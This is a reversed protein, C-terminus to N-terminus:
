KVCFMFGGLGDSLLPLPLSNYGAKKCNLSLDECLIWCIVFFTSCVCFYKLLILNKAKQCSPWSTATLLLTASKWEFRHIRKKNVSITAFAFNLICRESKENISNM